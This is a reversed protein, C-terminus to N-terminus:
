RDAVRVVGSPLLHGAVIVVGTLLLHGAVRVVGTILLHGSTEVWATYATGSLFLPSPPWPACVSVFTLLFLSVSSLKCSTENRYVPFSSVFGYMNLFM